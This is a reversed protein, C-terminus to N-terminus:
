LWIDRLFSILNGIFEYYQEKEKKNLRTGLLSIPSKKRNIEKEQDAIKQVVENEQKTIRREKQAGGTALFIQIQELESADLFVGHFRCVDVIVGSFRKNQLQLEQFEEEFLFSSNHDSQKDSGNSM